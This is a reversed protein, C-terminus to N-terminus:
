LQKRLQQLADKDITVPESAVLQELIQKEKEARRQKLLAAVLAPRSEELTQQRAPQHELIKILQWGRQFQVPGIVAGPQSGSIMQRLDPLLAETNLWGIDGGNQASQPEQSYQRALAAFDAGGARAASALNGVRTADTASDGSSAIVIKALHYRDPVVLKGLNNQYNEQVLLESPFDAEPTSWNQMYTTYLVQLRAQEMHNNVEPRANFKEAIAENLVFYQLALRNLYQQLQQTNSLVLRQQSPELSGLSRVALGMSVTMNGMRAVPDKMLQANQLQKQEQPLKLYEVLKNMDLEIPNSTVLGAVYNQENEQRQKERLQQRIAPEIEKLPKLAPTGATARQQQSAEYVKAVTVVDPYDAPPETKENMYMSYLINKLVKDTKEKVEAREQWNQAAARTIVNTRLAVGKVLDELGGEKNLATNVLQEDLSQLYGLVQKNSISVAGMSAVIRDENADAGPPMDSIASDPKSRNQCGVIVVLSATLLLSVLANKWYMKKM